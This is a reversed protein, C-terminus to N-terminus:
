KKNMGRPLLAKGEVNSQRARCRVEAERSTDASSVQSSARSGRVGVVEDSNRKQQQCAIKIVHKRDSEGKFIKRVVGERRERGVCKSVKTATGKRSRAPENKIEHKRDSEVKFIKRVAEGNERGAEPLNM